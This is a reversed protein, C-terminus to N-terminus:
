ESLRKIPNKWKYIRYFTYLMAPQIILFPIWLEWSLTPESYDTFLAHTQFVQWDNTLIVAGFFNNAFHYGMGLELGDDFHSLLGLFLGSLIYFPLVGIGLLQVEPNGSHMWGFLLALLVISVIGKGTFSSLGQFLYGRFLVDEFTTQIPLLTVSVLLLPIFTDWSFNFVLPAGASKASLMFITQFVFWLLFAFLFRRKDFRNRATFVSLISRKHIWRISALLALLGFCYPLLQIAFDLASRQTSDNVSVATM